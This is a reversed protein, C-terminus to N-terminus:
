SVSCCAFRALSALWLTTPLNTFVAGIGGGGEGTLEKEWNKRWAKFFQDTDLKSKLESCTKKLQRGEAQQEWGQGLVSEM